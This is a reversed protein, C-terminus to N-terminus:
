VKFLYRVNIESVTEDPWQVQVWGKADPDTIITGCGEDYPIDESTCCVMVVSGKSMGENNQDLQEQYKSTIDPNEKRFKEWSEENLVHSLWKPHEDKRIHNHHCGVVEIQNEDNLYAVSAFRHESCYYGGCQHICEYGMGRDIEKDCGAYDCYAPVGYGIWRFEGLFRGEGVGYGM